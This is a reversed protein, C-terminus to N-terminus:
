MTYVKLMKRIWVCMRYVGRYRTIYTCIEYYFLRLTFVYDQSLCYIYRKSWTSTEPMINNLPHNIQKLTFYSVTYIQMNAKYVLIWFSITRNYWFIFYIETDPPSHFITFVSYPFMRQWCKLNSLANVHEKVIKKFQFNNQRWVNKMSLYIVRPIFVSSLM